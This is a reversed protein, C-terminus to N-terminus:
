ILLINLLMLPCVFSSISGDTRSHFKTSRIFSKASDSSESLNTYFEEAASADNFKIIITTEGPKSPDTETVDYREKTFKDLIDRIEEETMDKGFIIEVYKSPTVTESSAIKTWKAYLIQVDTIDVKTESTIVENDKNIWGDFVYGERTPTPLEGYIDNYTVEKEKKDESLENGGKVDFSVTYNSPVWEAHLTQDKTIITPTETNNTIYENNEDYWGIFKHGRRTPSPLSDYPKNSSVTINREEEPLEDGGNVILTITYNNPTWQAYFTQDKSISVTSENTVIEKDETLWGAFEFGNRKPSPLDGYTSSFTVTTNEEGEVLEIGGNVDFTVTFNKPTWKAYLTQDYSITINSGDTIENGEETFWGEFTYGDRTPKPLSEYKDDYIVEMEKKDEPLDNGGNVDFSLKNKNWAACLTHNYVTDVITKNYVVEKTVENYWWLFEYGNRNPTPFNGYESGFTVTINNNDLEDGGKVDLTVVYNNPIWHAYISCNCVKNVLSEKTVLEDTATFWGAFTYGRRVPEPLEGVKQEFMTTVSKKDEPLEAGGNVDFAVNCSTVAWQAYLTTEATYSTTSSHVYKKNCEDALNENVCWFLFSYGRRVPEPLIVLQSDYSFGKGDYMVFNIKVSKQNYTWNNWGNNTAYSSLENAYTSSLSVKNVDSGYINPCSVYESCGTNSTWYCHDITITDGLVVGVISSVFGTTGRKSSSVSGASVCNEITNGYGRGIIGGVCYSYTYGTDIVEGYNICNYFYAIKNNNRYSQGIFGGLYTFDSSTGSNYISGYNACNIIRAGNDGSNINGSFGGVYIISLSGKGSFSVSAMNVNNEIICPRKKTGCNAIFGGLYATGSTSYSSSISCSSDIVTNRITVGGSSRFLGVYRLTSLSIVLNSITYGQGDFEGVFGPIPSFQASLGSFDIDATLYVTYNTYSIGSDLDNSFQILENADHIFKSKCAFSAEVLLLFSFLFSFSAMSIKIQAIFKLIKYLYYYFIEFKFTHIKM